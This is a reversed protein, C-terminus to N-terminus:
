NKWGLLLMWHLLLLLLLEWRLRRVDGCSDGHGQHWEAVERTTQSCRLLDM